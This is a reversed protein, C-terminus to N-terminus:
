PKPEHKKFGFLIAGYMTPLTTVFGNYSKAANQYSIMSRAAAILALRVEILGDSTSSSTLLQYLAKDAALWSSQSVFDSSQNVRKALDTLGVVRDARDSLNDVATLFASKAEQYAGNAEALKRQSSKLTSRTLLLLLSTVSIFWLVLPVFGM